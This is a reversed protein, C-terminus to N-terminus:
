TGSIAPVGNPVRAQLQRCFSKLRERDAEKMDQWAVTLLFKGYVPATEVRVVNFQAALSGQAPIHITAVLNRGAAFPEETQLVVDTLGLELVIAARRRTLFGENAAKYSAALSTKHRMALFTGSASQGNASPPIELVSSHM